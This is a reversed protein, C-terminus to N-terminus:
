PRMLAAAPTARWAGHPFFKRYALSTMVLDGVLLSWQVKFFWPNHRKPSYARRTTEDDKAAGCAGTSMSL